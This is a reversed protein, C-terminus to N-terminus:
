TQGKRWRDNVILDWNDVETIMEHVDGVDDHSM